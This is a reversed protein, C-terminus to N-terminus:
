GNMTFQLTWSQDGADYGYVSKEKPIWARSGNGIVHDESNKPDTYIDTPLESLASAVFVYENIPRNQADWGTHQNKAVTLM